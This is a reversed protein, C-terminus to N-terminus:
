QLPQGIPVAREALRAQIWAKAAPQGGREAWDLASLGQPDRQNLDVGQEVLWALAKLRGRSAALMAPTEGQSALAPTDLAVGAARALGLCEVDEGLAAMHMATWGWRNRAQWNAGALALRRVVAAQGHSLAVLLATDGQDDGWSDPLDPRAGYRLLLEVQDLRGRRAARILPTDGRDLRADPSAGQALLDALDRTDPRRLAMRLAVRQNSRESLRELHEGWAEGVLVPERLGDPVVGMVALVLGAGWLLRWLGHRVTRRAHHGAESRALVAAWDPQDAHSVSAATRRWARLLRALSEEVQEARRAFPTLRWGRGRRPETYIAQHRGTGGVLWLWPVGARALGRLEYAPCAQRSRWLAGDGLRMVWGEHMALVRDASLGQVLLAWSGAALLLWGLTWVVSDAEEQAFAERAQWLGLAMPLLCLLWLARQWGQHHRVVQDPDERPGLPQLLSGGAPEPLAAPAAGAETDPAPAVGPSAVAPRGPAEKPGPGEGLGAPTESVLASAAGGAPELADPNRAAPWDQPTRVTLAQRWRRSQRTDLLGVWWRAQEGDLREASPLGSAPLEFRTRLRWGGQGDPEPRVPVRANWVRRAPADPGSGQREEILELAMAAAAREDWHGADLTWTVELVGGPVPRVPHWRVSPHQPSM